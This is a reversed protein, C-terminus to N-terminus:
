QVEIDGSATRASVLPGGNRVKGQVERRGVTGQMTLPHNISIRGSATRAQFDFAAQAPVRLRISGSGSHLNWAGTPDGDVRISGSGSSAELGGRVGTLEVSGSGTRAETGAGGGAQPALTTAGAPAKVIAGGSGTQELRINGSGTSASAPGAIGHGTIEGSGARAQLGGQLSDLRINGSGSRARVEGTIKSIELNGSGTAAEVPGRIGDVTQNGSGNHSRLRTDAPVVLDYSISVHQFLDRDDSRGIRITSGTQEIPPNTEIRRVKEQASLGDDEARITGTVQVAGSGGAHVTINGAGTSVDLDVAGSVTLSRTFKGEATAAIAPAALSVLALWYPLHSRFLRSGFIGSGILRSRM